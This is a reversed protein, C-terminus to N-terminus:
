ESSRADHPRTTKGLGVNAIRAVDMDVSEKVAKSPSRKIQPLKEPVARDYVM